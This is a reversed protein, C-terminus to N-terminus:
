TILYCNRIIIILCNKINKEISLLIKNKMKRYIKTEKIVINNSKKKKKKVFVKIDKVIKKKKQLRGKNKQYFKASWDKSMKIYKFVYLYNNSSMFINCILKYQNAYNM